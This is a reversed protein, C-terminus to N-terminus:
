GFTFRNPWRSGIAVYPFAALILTAQSLFIPCCASSAYNKRWVRNYRSYMTAVACDGGFVSAQYPTVCIILPFTRNLVIGTPVVKACFLLNCLEIENASAPNQWPSRTEVSNNCQWRILLYQLNRKRPRRGRTRSATRSLL